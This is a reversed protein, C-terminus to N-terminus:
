IFDCLLGKHCIHPEFVKAIQCALLVKEVIEAVSHFHIRRIHRLLDLLFIERHCPRLLYAICHGINNGILQLFSRM